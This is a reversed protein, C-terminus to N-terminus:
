EPSSRLSLGDRVHETVEAAELRAVDDLQEDALEVRPQIRRVHLAGEGEALRLRLRLARGIAAPRLRVGLRELARGATPRTLRRMEPNSWSRSALRTIYRM